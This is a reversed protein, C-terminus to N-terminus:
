FTNWYVKVAGDELADIYSDAIEFIEDEDKIKFFLRGKEEIIDKSKGKHAALWSRFETEWRVASQAMNEYCLLEEKVNEILEEITLKM